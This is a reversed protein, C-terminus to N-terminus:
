EVAFESGLTQVLIPEQRHGIAAITDDEHTHSALVAGLDTETLLNSIMSEARFSIAGVVAM